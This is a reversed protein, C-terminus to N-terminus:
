VPKCLRVIASGLAKVARGLRSPDRECLIPLAPVLTASLVRETEAVILGDARARDIQGSAVLDDLLPAIRRQIMQMISAKHKTLPDRAKLALIEPAFAYTTRPLIFDGHDLHDGGIEAKLLAIAKETLAYGTSRNQVIWLAAQGRENAITVPVEPQERYSAWHALWRKEAYGEVIEKAAELKTKIKKLDDTLDHVDRIADAIDGPPVTWTTGKPPADAAPATAGKFLKTKM